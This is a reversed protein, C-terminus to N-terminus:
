ARARAARPRARPPPAPARRRARARRPSARGRSRLPTRRARGVDRARAARAAARGGARRRRARRPRKREVQRHRDLGLGAEVEAADAGVASRSAIVSGDFRQSPGAPRAAVVEDLVPAPPERMAVRGARARRDPARPGAEVVHRGVRVRDDARDGVADVRRAAEGAVAEHLRGRDARGDRGLQEALRRGEVERVVPGVRKAPPRATGRSARGARSLSMDALADQRAVPPPKSLRDSARRPRERRSWDPLDRDGHAIPRRRLREGASATWRRRSVDRRSELEPLHM